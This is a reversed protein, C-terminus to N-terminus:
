NSNKTCDEFSVIVHAHPLGRVEYEILHAIQRVRMRDTSLESPLNRLFVGFRADFVSRVISSNEYVTQGAPLAETIEPWEPNPTFTLYVSPPGEDFVEDTVRVSMRESHLESPPRLYEGFRADFMNRASRAAVANDEDDDHNDDNDSDSSYVRHPTGSDHRVKHEHCIINSSM